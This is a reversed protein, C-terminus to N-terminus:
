SLRALYDTHGGHTIDFLGRESLKALEVIKTVDADFDPHGDPHRRQWISDVAQGIFMGLRMKGDNM